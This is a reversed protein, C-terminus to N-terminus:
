AATRVGVPDLGPLIADLDEVVSDPPLGGRSQGLDMSGRAIHARIGVRRAASAIADFV